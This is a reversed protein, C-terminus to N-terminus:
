QHLVRTIGARFKHLPSVNAGQAVFGQVWSPAKNLVKLADAQTEFESFVCAGTGTLRSPAYELLWSVLQEVERFRKRAIPECDNAYPALLLAALSRKPSNRNLEPDTFIMPTSIEIGPHAVLYWREKPEAPTLIEGIGEAFAAHGRVFVPVDAGLHKGLEALTDDSLQTGWHENLAILTTAANSSGGGIGGGMPLVKDICIDAGLPGPHNLVMRCHAQLSKAARVILNKDVDVGAMTTLLNIQDDQRPTFTIQDGYDLFQFLTQLEHYGDARQGTIYLFLNLKAPSPWTLTM